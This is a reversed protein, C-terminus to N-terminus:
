GSVVVNAGGLLLVQELRVQVYLEVGFQRGREQQILNSTAIVIISPHFELLFCDLGCLKLLIDACVM